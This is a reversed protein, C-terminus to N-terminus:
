GRELALTWPRSECVSEPGWYQIAGPAVYADEAAWADRVAVFAGFPAGDLDVLAKRIVPTPRGKRVELHLLSTIPVGSPVWSSPPGLLGGVAAMVGSRGCAVLLAATRGLAATYDADFNSPAACRGEYGLFHTQASFRGHFSGRAARSSLERGVLEVLLKDTEIKSVQVNGHADRDLLLQTRIGGPLAEFLSRSSGDLEAVVTRLRTELDAQGAEGALLGNLRDILARLQPVFELLGEPVLCVGHGIGREARAAVADAVHRVIEALTAGNASIEEGILAVNPRTALACELTVHSASRGMLKVVHWYKRASAADRAINGILEGYVKTATDFGFSMEVHETRLDGDITKPVGVVRTTIGHGAFHEALVAANTNSDDGGVVVLGDLGRGRCTRAAAELQDASEIKDRGSRIRDFGGTNRYPALAAADLDIARDDIVGRPGDLFGVLSSGPDISLLGDLLGALVNHGGPAQGGSLVVGVRLPRRAPLEGGARLVLRRQGSTRPFRERIADADPGPPPPDHEVVEVSAGRLVEPLKPEYALRATEFPSPHVAM